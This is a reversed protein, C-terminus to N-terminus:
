NKIGKITEMIKELEEENQGSEQSKILTDVFKMDGPNEVLFEQDRFKRYETPNGDANCLVRYPCGGYAGCQTTNQTWRGTKRSERIQRVMDPIQQRFSDLEWQERQTAFRLFNTENKLIHILNVQFRTVEEELFDSLAWTYASIQHNPRFSNVYGSDLKSTTKHEFGALKGDSERIIGDITGAFLFPPDLDDIQVIFPLEVAEVIFTETPYKDFYQYLVEQGREISRKPDGTKLPDLGGDSARHTFEELALNKRWEIPANAYEPAYWAALGEHISSGMELAKSQFKPVLLDENRHKYKKNCNLNLSLSSWTYIEIGKSNLTSTIKIAEPSIPEEMIELQRQNEETTPLKVPIRM